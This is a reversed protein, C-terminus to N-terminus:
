EVTITGLLIRNDDTADVSLRAADNYLGAYIEYTGREEPLILSISESLVDGVRWNSTLLTAVPFTDAQTVLTDGDMVHVFLRYNQPTNDLLQWTFPISVTEGGSASAPVTYDRLAIIDGLIISDDTLPTADPTNDAYVALPPLAFFADGNDQRIDIIVDDPDRYNIGVRWEGSQALPVDDLRVSVIEGFIQGADWEDTTHEPFSVAGLLYDIGDYRMDDVVYALFFGYKIDTPQNVQWFLEVTYADGAAIWGNDANAWTPIDSFTRWGVLTVEGFVANAPVADTPLTSYTREFPLRPQPSLAWYVFGILLAVSAFPLAYRQILTRPNKKAQITQYLMTVSYSCLLVMPIVAPFRIRGFAFVLVYGFCIWAVISGLFLASKRDHYWLAALGPLGIIVLWHFRLPNNDLLPTRERARDFTLNNGPEVDSWFLAFKYGFLGWFHEPAVQMDRRLGAMYDIELNRHALTYSHRGASDRNNGMYIEVPGTTAVPIFDGGSTRWNHYTFPAIILAILISFLATHLIRKQWSIPLALLWLVYLGVMPALNLRHIAIGGAFIGLAITRWWTVQERQWLVFVTFGAVFFAALPAILTTTAYFLAIPYVAYLVGAIYGGWVRRTLLWGGLILLGCTLTDILMIGQLLPFLETTGLLRFIGHFIYAAGPHFYFPAERPFDGTFLGRADNLYGYNDTGVQPFLTPDFAVRQYFVIYRLALAFLVILVAIVLHRYRLKNSIDTNLSSM